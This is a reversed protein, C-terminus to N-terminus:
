YCRGDYYPEDSYKLSYIPEGWPSEIPTFSIDILGTFEYMWGLTEGLGIDPLNLEHYVENLLVFESDNLQSNVCNVVREIQTKRSKFYRGSLPEYFVTDGDGTEIIKINGLSDDEKVKKEVIIKEIDKVKETGVEELVTTKYERIAHESAILAAGLAVNRKYSIYTSGGVCLTSAVILLISPLYVKAKTLFEEKKTLRERKEEEKEQIVLNVKPTSKCAVVTASIFGVVGTTALLVPSHKRLLKFGIKFSRLLMEKLM